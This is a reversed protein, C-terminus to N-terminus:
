PGELHLQAKMEALRISPYPAAGWCGILEKPKGGCPSVDTAKGPVIMALQRLAEHSLPERFHRNQTSSLRWVSRM